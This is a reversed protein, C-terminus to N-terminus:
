NTQRPRALHQRGFRRVPAIQLTLKGALAGCGRHPLACLMGRRFSPRARRLRLANFEGGPHVGACPAKRAARRADGQRGVSELMSQPAGAAPLPSDKQDDVQQGVVELLKALEPRLDRVQVDTGEDLLRRLLKQLVWAGATDLAEIRKGDVLIGSKATASLADLQARDRRDRPCAGSLTLKGPMPHTIAAPASSSPDM